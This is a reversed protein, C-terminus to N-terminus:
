GALIVQVSCSKGVHISNLSPDNCVSLSSLLLAAHMCIRCGGEFGEEEPAVCSSLLSCRQMVTTESRPNSVSRCAQRRIDELTIKCM